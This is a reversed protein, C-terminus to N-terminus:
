LKMEEEYLEKLQKLQKERGRDLDKWVVGIKGRKEIHNLERNVEELLNEYNPRQGNNM